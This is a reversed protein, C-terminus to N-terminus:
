LALEKAEGLEVSVTASIKRYRPKGDGGYEKKLDECWSLFDEKSGTHAIYNKIDKLSDFALVNREFDGHVKGDKLATSPIKYFRESGLYACGISYGYLFISPAIEVVYFSDTVETEM